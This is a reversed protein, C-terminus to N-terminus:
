DEPIETSKADSPPSIQDALRRLVFAMKARVEGELFPPFIEFDGVIIPLADRGIMRISVNGSDMDAIAQMQLKATAEDGHWFHVGETIDLVRNRHGATTKM